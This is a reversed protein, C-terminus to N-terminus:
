VGQPYRSGSKVNGRDQGLFPTWRVESEEEIMGFWKLVYQMNGAKSKIWPGNLCCVGSKVEAIIFDIREDQCSLTDDREILSGAVERSYPFRVALLDAETRESGPTNPHLIFNPVTLYGNLRLYWSALQEFKNGM